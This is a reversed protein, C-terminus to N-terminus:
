APVVNAISTGIHDARAKDEPQLRTTGVYFQVACLLDEDYLLCSVSNPPQDFAHDWARASIDYGHPTDVIGCSDCPMCALFCPRAPGIFIKCLCYQSEAACSIGICPHTLIPTTRSSQMSAPFMSTTRLVGALLKVAIILVNAALGQMAHSPESTRRSCERRCFKHAM